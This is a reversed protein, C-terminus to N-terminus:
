CELLKGLGGRQQTGVDPKTYSSGDSKFCRHEGACDFVFGRWTGWQSPKKLTHSLCADLSKTSAGQHYFSSGRVRFLQTM